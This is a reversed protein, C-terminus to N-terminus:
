MRQLDPIYFMDPVVKENNLINRHSFIYYWFKIGYFKNENGFLYSWVILKLYLDFQKKLNSGEM